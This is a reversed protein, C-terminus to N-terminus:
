VANKDVLLPKLQFVRVEMFVIDLLNNIYAWIKPFFKFVPKQSKLVDHGIRGELVERLVRLHLHPSKKLIEVVPIAQNQQWLVFKEPPEMLTM